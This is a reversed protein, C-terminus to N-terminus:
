TGDAATLHDAVHPLPDGVGELRVGSESAIWVLLVRLGREPLLRDQPAPAPRGTRAQNATGPSVEVLAVAAVDKGAEPGHRRSTAGGHRSATLSGRFVAGLPEAEVDM